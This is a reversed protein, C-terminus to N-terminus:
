VKVKDKIPYLRDASDAGMICCNMEFLIEWM